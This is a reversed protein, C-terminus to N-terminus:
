AAEKQASFLNLWRCEHKQMAVIVMDRSGEWANPIRCQEKYGIRECFKLSRANGSDIRCIVTNVGGHDFPYSFSKYLLERTLWNGNGATHMEVSCESWNDFAVVGILEQLRTSYNGICRLNPTPVYSIRETLWHAMFDQPETIIM